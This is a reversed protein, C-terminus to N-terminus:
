LLKNDYRVTLEFNTYSDLQELTNALYVFNLTIM